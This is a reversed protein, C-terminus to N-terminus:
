RRFTNADLGFTEFVAMCGARRKARRAFPTQHALRAGRRSPASNEEVRLDEAMCPIRLQKLTQRLVKWTFFPIWVREPELQELILWWAARGLSLRPAVAHIERSGMLQQDLGFFSGLAKM